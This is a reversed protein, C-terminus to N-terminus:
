WQKFRNILSSYRQQVKEAVIMVALIYMTQLRHLYDALFWKEKILGFHKLISDFTDLKRCLTNAFPHWTTVQPSVSIIASLNSTLNWKMTNHALQHNHQIQTKRSVKMMYVPKIQQQPSSIMKWNEGDGKDSIETSSRCSMGAGGRGGSPIISFHTWKYLFKRWTEINQAVDRTITSFYFWTWVTIVGFM